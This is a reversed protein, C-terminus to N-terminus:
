TLYVIGLVAGLVIRYIVFPLFGVREILKLFWHICALAILGTLVVSYALQIWDISVTESQILQGGKLLGSAFIIPMSLLFSFKAAEQKNIHCLLAATMTVGSRSTGPILAMAQALGIFLAHQWTMNELSFHAKSRRESFLLLIAFFVSSIAIIPLARAYEEVASQFLVGAIGAPVSAIVILWALNADASKEGTTIHRLWARVLSLVTHRYFSLVALFTGVHLAVDFSLGQDPWGLISSPFILHASSSIPLFETIGQIIALITVQFYDLNM